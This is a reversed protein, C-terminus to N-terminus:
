YYYGPTVNYPTSGASATNFILLGTAPSSITTADSVSTLAIRPPLFGKSSSKMELVSSSHPTTTGIGVQSYVSSSLFLLSLAVICKLRNM